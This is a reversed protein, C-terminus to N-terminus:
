ICVEEEEEPTLDNEIHFEQRIQECTKGKLMNAVVKCAVELLGKIDM